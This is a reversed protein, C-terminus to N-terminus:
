ITKKSAKISRLPERRRKRDSTKSREKIEEARFRGKICNEKISLLMHHSPKRRLKAHRTKSKTTRSPKQKSEEHQFAALKKKM